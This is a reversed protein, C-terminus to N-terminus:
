AAQEPQHTLAKLYTAAALSKRVDSRGREALEVRMEPSARLQRLAEIGAAFDVEAWRADPTSEYIGSPDVVPRLAYPLLISNQATMFELNGSWGTAVAARGCAMAEALHLGFGEARHCSLIVDSDWVLKRQDRDTLSEDILSIRADKAVMATVAAQYYKFQSLNRCKVVLSVKDDPAFALNFMQMTTLINKRHMSSRGDAVTLFRLTDDGRQAPTPCAEEYLRKPLHHPITRVPRSFQRAFTDRVFQSPAWIESVFTTQRAWSPPAVELEWAWAGIIRWEHWRRLGLNLLAFETEPANAFLILTGRSNQPMRNLPVQSVTDSQNFAGSLDVAIPNLGGTVLAEYCGTAARGIGNATSFMGAIVLPQSELAQYPAQTPRPLIIRRIAAKGTQIPSVFSLTQDVRMWNYTFDYHGCLHLMVIQTM